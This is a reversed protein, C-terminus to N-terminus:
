ENGTMSISDWQSLVGEWIQIIEASRKEVLRRTDPVLKVFDRVTVALFATALDVAYKFRESGDQTGARFADMVSLCMPSSHTFNSCYKYASAVYNSSIGAHKIIQERSCLKSDTGKLLADRRKQSLATFFMCQELREIGRAYQQELKAIGLSEPIARKVMALREATEHFRWLAERAKAEEASVEEVLYAFTFYTEILNRVLSVVSPLDWADYRKSPVYISSSPILRLLSICTICSKAFAISGVLRRWESTPRDQAAFSLDAACRCLTELDNVSDGVTGV